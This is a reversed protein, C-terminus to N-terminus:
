DVVAIGFTMRNDGPDADGAEPVQAYQDVTRGAGPDVDSAMEFLFLYQHLAGAALEPYACEVVQYAAAEGAEGAFRCGQWSGTGMEAPPIHGVWRLTLTGAPAATLGRNCVTVSLDGRRVGGHAPGMTLDAAFVRLDAGPAPTDPECPGKPLEVSGALDVPKVAFAKRNNGPNVDGDDSVRVYQDVPRDFGPDTGGPIAFTFVERLYAGAPLEPYACIVVNYGVESGDAAREREPGAYRCDRWAGTGMESDPPISDVWRMTLRGAPAAAVGNNCILVSLNAPRVTGDLPGVALDSLTVDLDAGDPTSRLACTDPQRAPDTGTPPGAAEGRLLLVAPAVVLAVALASAVAVSATRRRRIRSRAVELRDPPPGPVGARFEHFVSRVLADDPDADTM